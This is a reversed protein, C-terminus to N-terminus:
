GKGVSAPVLAIIYVFQIVGPCPLDAHPRQDEIKACTSAALISCSLVTVQFFTVAPVLKQRSCLVFGASIETDEIGTLRIRLNEGGKAADVEADDRFIAVVSVPVRCLFLQPYPEDDKCYGRSLSAGAHPQLEEGDYKCSLSTSASGECCALAGNALYEFCGMIFCHVDCLSAGGKGPRVCSHAVGEPQLASILKSALCPVVLSAGAASVLNQKHSKSSPWM